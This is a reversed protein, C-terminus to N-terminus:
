PYDMHVQSPYVRYFFITSKLNELSHTRFSLKWDALTASKKGFIAGRSVLMNFDGALKFKIGLKTADTEFEAAYDELMFVFGDLGKLFSRDKKRKSPSKIYPVSYKFRVSLMAPQSRRYVAIPLAGVNNQLNAPLANIGLSPYLGGTICTFLVAVTLTVIWTRLGLSAFLVMLLILILSLVTIPIGLGFWIFFICVFTASLATAIISILILIKKLFDQKVELWYACLICMAPIIPTLYREFSRMFFFPVLSSLYWVALWINERSIKNKTIKLTNIMAMVFVLTWPFILGLTGGIIAFPSGAFPSGVNKSSLEKGIISLFSPWQFSMLLPWPICVVLLLGLALSLQQMHSFCFKWKRFVCLGSVVATVFFLFGVPGKVLFSFGLSASSLLVWQLHGTKGWKIAFFVTFSTFFALPLDLMALRSQISVGAMALTLMGALFGDKRFLEKSILCCCVALGAGSLVAWFRAAFLNIGLIKYSILIAWYVLPPKKLRPEDNLWPTLWSGREHMEMPTRLSRWYEDKDTISTELWISPTLLVIGLLFIILPTNRCFNNKLVCRYEIQWGKLLKEHYESM